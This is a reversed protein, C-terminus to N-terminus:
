GLVIEKATKLEPLKTLEGLVQEPVAKDVTLVMIAEGGVVQRGVQMSAINVDNRGLLTGVNGIIGPKDTHSIVILHGEPAIDVPFKDIQVIRDGYGNLLTGAIQTDVGNSTQITVTILNM